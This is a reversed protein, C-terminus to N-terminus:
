TSCSSMHISGMQDATGFMSTKGKQLLYSTLLDSSDVGRTPIHSVQGRQWNQLTLESLTIRVVMVSRKSKAEDAVGIDPRQLETYPRCKVGELGAQIQIRIIGM